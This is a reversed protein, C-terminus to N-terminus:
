SRASEPAGVLCLRESRGGRLYERQTWVKCLWTIKNGSQESRPPLKSVWGDLLLGDWSMLDGDQTAYKRYHAAWEPKWDFTKNNLIDHVRCAVDPNFSEMPQM